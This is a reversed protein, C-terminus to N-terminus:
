ASQVVVHEGPTLCPVIRMDHAHRVVLTRGDALRLANRCHSIGAADPACDEDSLVVGDMAARPLAGRLLRTNLIPGPQSPQAAARSVVVIRTEAPATHGRDSTAAAAAVAPPSGGDDADQMVTTAVVLTPLLLAALAALFRLRRM